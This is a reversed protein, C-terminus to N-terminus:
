VVVLLSYIFLLAMLSTLGTIVYNIVDCSVQTKRSIEKYFTTRTILTTQKKISTTPFCNLHKKGHHINQPCGSVLHYCAHAVTILSDTVPVKVSGQQLKGLLQLRPLPLGPAPLLQRNTKGCHKALEFQVVKASTM